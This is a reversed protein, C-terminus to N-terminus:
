HNTALYGLNAGLSPVSGPVGDLIRKERVSEVVLSINCSVLLITSLTWALLLVVPTLEHLFPRREVTDILAGIGVPVVLVALLPAAIYLVLRGARPMRRQLVAGAVLFTAALSLWTFSLLAIGTICGAIAALLRIHRPLVRSKCGSIQEDNRQLM